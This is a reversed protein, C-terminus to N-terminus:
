VYACWIFSFSYFSQLQRGGHKARSGTSRKPCLYTRICIQMDDDHNPILSDEPAGFLLYKICSQIFLKYVSVLMGFKSAARQQM